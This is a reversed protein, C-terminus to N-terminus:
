RRIGKCTIPGVRAIEDIDGRPLEVALSCSAGRWKLRLENKPQLGTVFAEGRRAVFFEQKDGVLELEAGAPAPEGDDFLIKILAGRGSRVPFVVKVGSREPPTVTQEISDLEASIPLESPDLRLSNAQFPMLGPVLARGNSDTRTFVRGHLGIGVNAHGPVEVLAFSSTLRRAQFLSGDMFVLSGQAGMRLAQQNASTSVDGTLLMRPGQYYLGGEAYPSEERYGGLVRWGLGTEDTLGKSVTAYAETRGARHSGVGSLHMGVGLPLTLNVGLSTGGGTGQVHTLSFTLSGNEAIRMSYNGSYTTIPGRGFTNIRAFGLGLTGFGEAGYSYNASLELRHPLFSADTGIDTYGRTSGQVRTSFGHRTHTHELGLLWRAGTGRRADRSGALAAMTLMQWPLAYLVGLGLNRTERSAEGHAELTLTKSLGGRWMGSVFREGYDANEAGLNQRLAGAEVSWDSLGQELMSGHSFFPQVIVTERGLVDRVVLKAQGAGTLLPFNDIVFPGTPVRSTQRLADNVYLEVTSPATSTGALLPVPQTLFGPTLGFNRGLQIGGFYVPRGLLSTRTTSDGLRLTLGQGPFNHTFTTELRRVVRPMLPDSSDLHRGVFSSTLVGLNSSYGVETLLGFDRTAPAGKSRGLDLNADFTLFLAPEARATQPGKSSDDQALRTQAFAAPSFVLSVSQTTPNMQAQFGPLSGLPYWNQGRHRLPAADARRNLRWEELAEEPAYLVGDRELLAWSGGPANNVSVELPILRERQAPNAAAQAPAPTQSLVAHPLVALLLAPLILHPSRPHHRSHRM